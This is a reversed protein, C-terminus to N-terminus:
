GFLRLAIVALVVFGALGLLWSWLPTNANIATTTQSVSSSESMTNNIEGETVVVPTILDSSDLSRVEAVSATNHIPTTITETLARRETITIVLRAYPSVPAKDGCEVVVAYTGAFDFIHETQADLTGLVTTGDGFNWVCKDGVTHQVNATFTLVEGAIPDGAVSIIGNLVEPSTVSATDKALAPENTRGPTPPAVSWTDHLKQLSTGDGSAGATSEYSVQHVINLSSDKLGIIGGDNSLSFSSTFLIGAYQPYEIMFQEGNAAIVAFEGPSLVTSGKFQKIGHNTEKKFLKWKTFDLTTDGSNYVEIWERKSDSGPLDYM